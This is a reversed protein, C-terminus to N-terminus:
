VGLVSVMGQEGLPAAPGLKVQVWISLMTHVYEAKPISPRSRPTKGPSRRHGVGM